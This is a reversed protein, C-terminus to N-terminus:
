RAGRMMDAMGQGYNGHAMEWRGRAMDMQGM